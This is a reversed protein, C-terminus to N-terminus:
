RSLVHNPLIMPESRECFAVFCISTRTEMAKLGWIQVCVTGKNTPAWFLTPPGPPHLLVSIPVCSSIRSTHALCQLCETSTQEWCHSGHAKQFALQYLKHEPLWELLTVLIRNGHDWSLRFIIGRSYRVRCNITERASLVRLSEM